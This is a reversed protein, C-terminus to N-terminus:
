FISVKKKCDIRTPSGEGLFPKFPVVPPGLLSAYILPNEPKQTNFSPTEETGRASGQSMLGSPYTILPKQGM